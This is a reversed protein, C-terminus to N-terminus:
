QAVYDHRTQSPRQGRGGELLKLGFLPRLWRVRRLGEYVVVSSGLVAVIMLPLELPPAIELPLILTSWGYQIPLHVIYVPYVATSLYSLAQSSRNLYRAAFGLVAVIWASSELALLTHPATPYLPRLQRLLYLGVAVALAVYRAATLITWTGKGSSSVAFGVVFCAAGLWIGHWTGAYLTYHEPAVLIAELVLPAAVLVPGFSTKMAAAVWRYPAAQPRAKIWVFLPLLVIVYVFINFLFWLHGATPVYALRGHYHLSALALNTPAVIFFGFALPLLIRLSRDLLLERWDRREMAFSVGMGSVMFLVPIRWLNIMEMASWLGELPERNQIFAFLYGWPQYAISLHYVILLTLAIVRVWDLDHRREAGNGPNSPPPTTM